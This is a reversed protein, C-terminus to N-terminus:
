STRQRTADARALRRLAAVAEDVGNVLGLGEIQRRMAAGRTPDSALAIAAEVIAKADARAPVVVGLRTARRIRRAQDDALPVSVIERGHALSHILTTGGNSVVRTAGALLHQV